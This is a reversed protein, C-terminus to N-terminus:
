EVDSYDTQNRMPFVTQKDRLWQKLGLETADGWGVAWPSVYVYDYPRYYHVRSRGSTRVAKITCDPIHGIAYQVKQRTLQLIEAIEAVCLAKTANRIVEVIRDHTHM